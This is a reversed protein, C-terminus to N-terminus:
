SVGHASRRDTSRQNLSDVRHNLADVRENTVGIAKEVNGLRADISLLVRLVASEGAGGDM